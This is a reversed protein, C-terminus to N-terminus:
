HYKQWEKDFHGSLRNLVIKEGVKKYYPLYSQAVPKTFSKKANKVADGVKEYSNTSWLYFIQGKANKYFIDIKKKAM